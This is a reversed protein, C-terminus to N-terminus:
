ILVQTFYHNTGAQVFCKFFFLTLSGPGDHGEQKKLQKAIDNVVFLKGTGASGLLLMNHGEIAIDIAEKQLNNM